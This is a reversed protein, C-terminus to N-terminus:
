LSLEEIGHVVIDGKDDRTGVVGDPNEAAWTTVSMGLVMALTLVVSLIKKLKKM